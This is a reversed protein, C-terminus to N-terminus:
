VAFTLVTGTTTVYKHIRYITSSCVKYGGQQILLKASTDELCRRLAPAPPCQFINRFIGRRGFVIYSITESGKNIMIFFRPSLRYSWLHHENNRLPVCIGERFGLFCPYFHAEWIYVRVNEILLAYLNRNSELSKSYVTQLFNVVNKLSQWLSRNTRGEGEDRLFCHRATRSPTKRELTEEYFAAAAVM